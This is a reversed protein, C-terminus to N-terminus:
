LETRNPFERTVDLELREQQRRPGMGSTKLFRQGGLWQV